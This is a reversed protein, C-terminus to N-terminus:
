RVDDIVKDNCNLNGIRGFYVERISLKEQQEDIYKEFLSKITNNNMKDHTLKSIKGCEYGIGLSIQFGTDYRITSKFSIATGIHNILNNVIKEVYNSLTDTLKDSQSLLADLTVHEYHSTKQQDSYEIEDHCIRRVVSKNRM